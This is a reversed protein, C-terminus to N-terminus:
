LWLFIYYFCLVFINVQVSLGFRIIPSGSLWRGSWCDFRRPYLYLQLRIKIYTGINQLIRKGGDEPSIPISWQLCFCSPLMLLVSLVESRVPLKM